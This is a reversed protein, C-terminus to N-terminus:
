SFQVFCRAGTSRASSATSRCGSATSICRCASRVSARSDPPPFPPKNHTLVNLANQYHKLTSEANENTKSFGWFEAALVGKSCFLYECFELVRPRAGPAETVHIPSGGLISRGRKPSRGQNERRNRRAERRKEESEAIM